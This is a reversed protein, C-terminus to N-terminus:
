ARFERFDSDTFHGMPTYGKVPRVLYSDEMYEITFKIGELEILEQEQDIADMLEMMMLPTPWPDEFRRAM